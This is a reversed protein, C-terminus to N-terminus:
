CSGFSFLIICFARTDIVGCTTFIMKVKDFTNKGSHYIMKRDDFWWLPSTGVCAILPLAMTKGVLPDGCRPSLGCGQKWFGDHNEKVNGCKRSTLCILLIFKNCICFFIFVTLFSHKVEVVIKNSWITLFLIKDEEGIVSYPPYPWTKSTREERSASLLKECVCM